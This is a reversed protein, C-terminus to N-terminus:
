REDHLDELARRLKTRARHLLVRQNTESIALANCVEGSSWGHVDRLVLVVHQAPPLADVAETLAARTEAAALRQEPSGRWASPPAAWHVPILPHDCPEFRGPEVLPPGPDANADFASAFPATRRERTGRTKARNVLIRFIWTKLSSREEFRDIGNLVGLWTEQVVEEAVAESPVYTRAVGLLLRHYREVVVRFADEDGSRLREILDSEDNVPESGAEDGM